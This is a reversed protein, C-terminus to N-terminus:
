YFQFIHFMVPNSRLTMEDGWRICIKTRQEDEWPSARTEAFSKKGGGDSHRLSKSVEAEEEERSSWESVMSDYQASLQLKAFHCNKLESIDFATNSAILSGSM